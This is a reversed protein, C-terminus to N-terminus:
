VRRALQIVHREFGKAPAQLVLDPLPVYALATKLKLRYTGVDPVSIRQAGDHGGIGYSVREESGDRLVSVVEAAEHFPVITANDRLVIDFGRARRLRLTAENRGPGVRLRLTAWEYDSEHSRLEIEGQPALFTFPDTLSDRKVAELGGGHAGPPLALSWLLQKLVVDGGHEDDIVHVVVEGPPAVRLVFDTKDEEGLEVVTDLPPQSIQVRYRGPQLGDFRWALRREPGPLPRLDAARVWHRTLTGGVPADLLEVTLMFHESRWEPPIELVGGISVRRPKERPKVELTAINRGDARVEAKTAGLLSSDGQQRFWEGVQVRVEYTGVPLSDITVEDDGATLPMDLVPEVTQSRRISLRPREELDLGHIRVRLDGGRELAAFREGGRSPDVYLRTWAYGPARVYVSTGATAYYLKRAAITVRPGGSRIMQEGRRRGPHPQDTELTGPHLVPGSNEDDRSVSTGLGFIVEANSLEEGTDAAKIHIVSPAPWRAVLDCRAGEALTIEREACELVAPRGGLEAHGYLGVKTGAPLDLSWRGARM